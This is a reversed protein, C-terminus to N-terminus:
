HYIMFDSMLLDDGVSYLTPSYIISVLVLKTGVLPPPLTM